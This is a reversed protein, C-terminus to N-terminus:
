TVRGIGRQRRRRYLLRDLIRSACRRFEQCRSYRKAFNSYSYILSIHLCEFSLLSSSQESRYDFTGAVAGGRTTSEIRTSSSDLPRDLRGNATRNTIREPSLLGAHRHGNRCTSWSHLTSLQHTFLPSRIAARASNEFILAQLLATECKSSSRRSYTLLPPVVVSSMNSSLPFHSELKSNEVVTVRTCAPSTCFSCVARSQRPWSNSLDFFLLAASFM